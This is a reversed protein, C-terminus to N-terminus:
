IRALVRRADLNNPNQKILDEAETVARSLQGSQIYLETLEESLFTATPDLKLADKYFEIAKNLYEGRNGYAGALESYLHGMAFDYYATGKESPQAKIEPVPKTEQALALAGTLAAVFFFKSYSSLFRAQSNQM